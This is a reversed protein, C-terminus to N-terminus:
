PGTWIRLLSQEIDPAPPLDATNASLCEDLRCLCRGNARRGSRWATIRLGRLVAQALTLRPCSEVAARTLELLAIRGEHALEIGLYGKWRRPAAQQCYYCTALAHGTVPNELVYCPKTRQDLWHTWYGELAPSLIIGEVPRGTARPSVIPIYPRAPPPTDNRCVHDNM